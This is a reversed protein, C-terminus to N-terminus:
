NPVYFLTWGVTRAIVFLQTAVAAMFLALLGRGGCLLLFLFSIGSQVKGDLGGM